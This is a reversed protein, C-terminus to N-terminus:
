STRCTAEKAEMEARHDQGARWSAEHDKVAKQWGCPCVAAVKGGERFETHPFHPAPRTQRTPEGTM